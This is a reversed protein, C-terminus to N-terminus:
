PGEFVVWQSFELPCSKRTGVQSGDTTEHKVEQLIMTDVERISTSWLKM